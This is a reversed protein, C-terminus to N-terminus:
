KSGKIKSKRNCKLKPYPEGNWGIAIVIDDKIYLTVANLKVQDSKSDGLQTAPSCLYIDSIDLLLDYNRRALFSVSSETHALTIGQDVLFFVLILNSLSLFTLIVNKNM